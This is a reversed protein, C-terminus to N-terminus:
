LCTFTLNPTYYFPTAKFFLFFLRTSLSNFPFQYYETTQTYFLERTWSSGSEKCNYSQVNEGRLNLYGSLESDRSKDHLEKSTKPPFHVYKTFCSFNEDKSFAESTCWGTICKWISEWFAPSDGSQGWRSHLPVEPDDAVATRSRLGCQTKNQKTKNKTKCNKNINPRGPDKTAISSSERTAPLPPRSKM